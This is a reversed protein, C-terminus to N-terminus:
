LCAATGSDYISQMDAVTSASSAQKTAKPSYYGVYGQANFLITSDDSNLNDSLTAGISRWDENQTEAYYADIQPRASAGFLLIFVLAASYVVAGALKDSKRRVLDGLQLAIAAIGSGVSLLFLPLVFLIQRIHFFYNVWQDIMIIAPLSVLVWVALFVGNAISKRGISVMGVVALLGWLWKGTESGSGFTALINEILALNMTPVAFQSVGGERLVSYVFWPLFAVSIVIGSLVFGRLAKGSESKADTKQATIWKILVWGAHFILILGTYLHAYLGLIMLVVYIMWARLDNRNWARWLAETAMLATLVFLAYFRVEQSYRIHLLSIALFFAAILGAMKSHMQRGLRYVWYVSLVGWLASPLRLIWENHSIRVTAATVFYDLPAAGHHRRVGDLIASLPRQAVLVQGIEDLWLSEVGLQYLRLGAAVTLVM